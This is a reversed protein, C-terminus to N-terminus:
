GACQCWARRRIGSHLGPYGASPYAARKKWKCGGACKNRHRRLEARTLEFDGIGSRDAKDRGPWSGASSGRAGAAGPKANPAPQPLPGGAHVGSQGEIMTRMMQRRRM